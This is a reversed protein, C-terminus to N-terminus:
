TDPDLGWSIIRTPRIRIADRSFYPYPREWDSTLEAIGRIEVGRVRWPRTSAIDDVVLSVHPNRQANRWKRTTGLARGGVDVTGNDDALFYGVPNNQPHGDADVTALRGLRQSALYDREAPTLDLAVGCDPTM